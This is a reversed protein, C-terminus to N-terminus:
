PLQVHSEVNHRISEFVDFVLVRSQGREDALVGPGPSDSVESIFPVFGSIV